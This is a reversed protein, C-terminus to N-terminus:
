NKYLNFYENIPVIKKREVQHLKKYISTDTIITDYNLQAAEAELLPFAEISYYEVDLKQLTAFECALLANLGTGFGMEFIKVHTKNKILALGNQIFVHRGEQEAGHISHYQEKITKHILTNSGDETKVIKM